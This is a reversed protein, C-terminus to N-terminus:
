EQKRKCVKKIFESTQTASKHDDSIYGQQTTSYSFGSGVPADLYIINVMQEFYCLYGGEFILALSIFSYLSFQIKMFFVLVINTLYKMGKDM